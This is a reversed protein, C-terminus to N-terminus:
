KKTQKCEIAEKVLSNIMQKEFPILYGSDAFRGKYSYVLKYYNEKSHLKALKKHLQNSEPSDIGLDDLNLVAQEMMYFVYSQEVKDLEEDFSRFFGELDDEEEETQDKELEIVKGDDDVQIYEELDEYGEIRDFDVDEETEEYVPPEYGDMYREVAVKIRDMHDPFEGKSIYTHILVHTLSDHRVNEAVKEPTKYKRILDDMWEKLVEDNYVKILDLYNDYTLDSKGTRKYEELKKNRFVTPISYKDDKAQYWNDVFCPSAFFPPAGEIDLEMCETLMEVLEMAPVGPIDKYGGQYVSIMVEDHISLMMRVLPYYDGNYEIVRKDWGKMRIYEYIRTECIKLYDAAYGQVPTNNGARVKSMIEQETMGPDLVELFYRYRGLKTKIKGEERIIRENNAVFKKIRPLGNYFSTISERAALLDKKSYGPGANRRALGYESMMYVVGFNRSKDKGRVEDSIAWMPVGSLISGIARHIDVEPDCELKILDEQEALYALVRLEIQSFDADVLRHFPTDSIVSKKMGDSYQHADSTQRGSAAGVQNIGFKIRGKKTNNMIRVLAGREKQAKNYAKLIVLSPYRNKLLDKGKVVVNPKGNKDTTLDCIDPPIPKGEIDEDKLTGLDVIRNIAEASTSPAGTKTRVEIPARLKNYIINQKVPSSNINKDTKHIGQFIDKLKTVKYIENDLAKSLYDMNIRMGYFVNEAKVHVLPCEIKFYIGHEDEPLQTLLYKYVRITNTTDPCAYLRVIEEPLVNFKIEGKFIDDLELFKQGTVKYALNKLAHIGARIVPNVLVSLVYSCADIRMDLNYKLTIMKEFQANHAVITVDEPQRNIADVIKALYSLDLNFQFKDQKFPFYTSTWEDESLVVGTIEDEGCIYIDVGTTETDVSKVKEPSEEWKKLRMDAEEESKIVVFDYDDLHDLEFKAKLYEVSHYDSGSDENRLTGDYFYVPEYQALNFPEVPKTFSNKDIYDLEMSCDPSSYMEYVLIGNELELRHKYSGDVSQKEQKIVFKGDRIETTQVTKSSACMISANSRCSLVNQILEKEGLYYEKKNKIYSAECDATNMYDKVNISVDYLDIREFLGGDSYITLRYSDDSTTLRGVKLM